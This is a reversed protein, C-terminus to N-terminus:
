PTESFDDELELLSNFHEKLLSPGVGPRQNLPSAPLSLSPQLSCLLPSRRSNKTAEMLGANKLYTRRFVQLLPNSLFPHPSDQLLQQSRHLYFLAGRPFLTKILGACSVVGFTITVKMRVSGEVRVCGRVKLRFSFRIREKARIRFRVKIKVM